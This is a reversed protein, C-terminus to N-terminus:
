LYLVANRMKDNKRINYSCLVNMGKAYEWFPRTHYNPPPAQCCSCLCGCLTSAFTFLLYETIAVISIAIYIPLYLEMQLQYIGFSYTSALSGTLLSVDSAIKTNAILM